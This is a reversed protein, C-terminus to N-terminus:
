RTCFGVASNGNARPRSGPPCVIQRQRQRQQWQQQQWKQYRKKIRDALM